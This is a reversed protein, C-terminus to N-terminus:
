NIRETKVSYKDNVSISNTFLSSNQRKILKKVKNPITLTKTLAMELNEKDECYLEIEIIIKIKNEM